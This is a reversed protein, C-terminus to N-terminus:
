RRLTPFMRSGIVLAGNVVPAALLVLVLAMGPGDVGTIKLLLAWLALIALAGNMIVLLVRLLRQKDGEGPM